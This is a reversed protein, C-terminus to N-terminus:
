HDIVIERAGTRDGVMIGAVDDAVPANFRRIHEGAPTKDPNIVIAHNDSELKHMHSKFIKLLENHENLLADLESVIRKESTIIENNMICRKWSYITTSDDTYVGLKRLVLSDNEGLKNLITAKGLVKCNGLELNSTPKTKKNILKELFQSQDNTLENRCLIKLRDIVCKLRFSDCIQISVGNPSKVSNEISQNFDEYIFASHTFLPGWNEVSRGLHALLHVNFSVYKKGYLSEVGVLFEKLCKDAYVIESKMISKKTLIAIGDVLLAWHKVYKAPFFINLVPLSYALLFIVWEHAKMHGREKLGKPIRSFDSTPSLSLIWSDVEDLVNGFYFAEGSNTSDFWLNAFQRCVGLAVCHMWDVDINTIIDYMPIDCLISEKKIGKREKKKTAQAHVLTEQHTRLGDGFFDGDIAPYVRAFGRGKEISEGPHLCLGCGYKGNFQTTCQVLPRAVSDCIGMLTVVRKKHIQGNYTYTFGEEYLKEAEHVFPTLYSNMNKPKGTGFWVSCMLVHNRRECPSLENITSLVPYASTNSSEFIPAGDVNFNISILDDSVMVKKYAKGDFLDEVAYPSRKQRSKSYLHHADTMEFVERLQDTLSLYLFSGNNSKRDIKSHCYRCRVLINNDTGLYEHCQECIFHTSINQSYQDILLKWYYKSSRPSGSVCSINLLNLIDQAVTYTTNRRWKIAM